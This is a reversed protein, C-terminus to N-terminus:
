STMTSTTTSMGWGTAVAGGSDMQFYELTPSGARHSQGGGARWCFEHEAGGEGPLGHRHGSVGVLQDDYGDGNVDGAAALWDGVAGTTASYVKGVSGYQVSQSLSESQFGPQRQQDARVGPLGPQPGPRGGLLREARGWQRGGGGGGCQGTPCQRRQRRILHSADGLAVADTPIPWGGPQGYVVAVRGADAKGNVTASPLGVALDARPDGNVDGLWNVNMGVTETFSQPMLMVTASIM